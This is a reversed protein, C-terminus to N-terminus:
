QPIHCVQQMLPADVDAVLTGTKLDIAKAGDERVLDPRPPCSIKALIALPLPVEVLHKHLNVANLM